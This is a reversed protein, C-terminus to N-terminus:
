FMISVCPAGNGTIPCMRNEWGGYLRYGSYVKTRQVNSTISDNSAQQLRSIMMDRVIYKCLLEMVLLPICESRYDSEGEQHQNCGKFLWLHVSLLPFVRVTEAVTSLHLKLVQCLFIYVLM